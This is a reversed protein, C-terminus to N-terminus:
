GPRGAGVRRLDAVRHAKGDRARLVGRKMPVIRVRLGLRTRLREQVERASDPRELEAEVRVEDMAGETYFVIRFEGVGGVDRLVEEIASPFVNMGRIVVMDDTRGIIGEELWPDQHGAPCSTQSVRVADGTRYRIAPFGTRGLATVVLEGLKGPPVSERSEPDIVEFLFEDTNLHLGGGAECPYGFGGVETLGAHDLCRAGWIREIEDRVSTISAGPEGACIVREISHLTEPQDIELARRALHMAYSPTCALVTAGYMSLTELRQLSGMGGLPIALASVAQSAEYAAWFQVYPGFSYALGIRDSERVGAERWVRSLCRGWWDWDQPTELVKLPTGTSGSTQFVLSYRELEYTVNTGFPPHEAQDDLLEQKSTLPLTELEDISGLPGPPVRGSQFTNLGRVEELLQNLRSLRTNKDSM